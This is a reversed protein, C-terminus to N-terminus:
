KFDDGSQLKCGLSREFLDAKSGCRSPGSRYKVVLTPKPIWSKAWGLPFIPSPWHLQHQKSSFVGLPGIARRGRGGRRHQQQQQLCKTTQGHRPQLWRLQLRVLANARADVNPQYARTVPDLFTNCSANALSCHTHQHTYSRGYAFRNGYMCQRILLMFCLWCARLCVSLCSAINGPTHTSHTSSISKSRRRNLTLNGLSISLKRIRNKIKDMITVASKVEEETM